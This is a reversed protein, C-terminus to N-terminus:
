VRCYLPDRPGSNLVGPIHYCHNCTQVKLLFTWDTLVISM